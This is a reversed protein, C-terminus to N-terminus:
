VGQVPSRLDIEGALGGSRLLAPRPDLRALARCAIVHGRADRVEDDPVVLDHRPTHDAVVRSVILLVDDAADPLDTVGTYTVTHIPVGCVSGTETVHQAVRAAMAAAPLDLITTGDADVIHVPHPTLNRLRM